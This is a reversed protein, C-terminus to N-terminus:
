SAQGRLMMLVSLSIVPKSQDEYVREIASGDSTLRNELKPCSCLKEANKKAAHPCVGTYTPAPEGRKLLNFMRKYAIDDVVFFPQSNFYTSQANM